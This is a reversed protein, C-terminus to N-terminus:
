QISKSSATWSEFSSFIIDIKKNLASTESTEERRPNQFTLSPFVGHYEGRDGRETATVIYYLKENDASNM